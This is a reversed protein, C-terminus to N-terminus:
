EETLKISIEKYRQGTWGDVEITYLKTGSGTVIDTLHFPITGSKVTNEYWDLFHGFETRGGTKETGTDKCRLILAHEKKPVSNKLYKIERGSKFEVTETNDKYGGDQGYFDTNVYASWQEAM